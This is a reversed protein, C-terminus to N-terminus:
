KGRWRTRFELGNRKRKSVVLGCLQIERRDKVKSSFPRSSTVTSRCLNAGSTAGKNSSVHIIALASILTLTSSLSPPPLPLTIRPNMSSSPRFRWFVHKLRSLTMVTPLFGEQDISPFTFKTTPFALFTHRLLHDRPYNVTYDEYRIRCRIGQNHRM